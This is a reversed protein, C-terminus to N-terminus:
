AGLPSQAWLSRLMVRYGHYYQWVHVLEHVLVNASPTTNAYLVPGLHLVFLSAGAAGQYGGVGSPTVEETWPRDNYGLGDKIQIQSRDPLSLGFVDQAIRWESDNLGRTQRDIRM